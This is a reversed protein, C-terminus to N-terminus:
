DERVREIYMGKDTSASKDSIKEDKKERIVAVVIFSGILSLLVMIHTPLSHKSRPVYAKNLLAISTGSSLRSFESELKDIFINYLSEKESLTRLLINKKDILEELKILNNNESEIMSELNVQQNLFSEYNIKLESVLSRARAQMMAEAAKLKDIRNVVQPHSEKYTKLLVNIQSKVNLYEAEVELYSDDNQVELLEKASKGSDLQRKISSYALEADQAEAKIASLNIYYADMKQRIIGYEKRLDKSGIQKNFERLDLAAKEIDDRLTKTNRSIASVTEKGKIAVNDISLITVAEAIKNAINAALVPKKSRVQILISGEHSVPKVDVMSIIKSEKNQLSLGGGFSVEEAIKKVLDPNEISAAIKRLELWSVEVDKGQLKKTIILKANAVYYNFVLSSIIYSLLIIVVFSILFLKPKKIPNTIFSKVKDIM